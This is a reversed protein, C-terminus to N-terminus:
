FLVFNFVGVTTATNVFCGNFACLFGSTVLNIVHRNYRMHRINILCFVSYLVRINVRFNLDKNRIVFWKIMVGSQNLMQSVTGLLGTDGYCTVYSTHCGVPNQLVVIHTHTNPFLGARSLLDWSYVSQESVESEPAFASLKPHRRAGISTGAQCRAPTSLFRPSEGTGREDGWFKFGRVRHSNSHTWKSIDQCLFDLCSARM